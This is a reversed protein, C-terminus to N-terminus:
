VVFTASNTSMTGWCMARVPLLALIDALIQTVRCECRSGGDINAVYGSALVIGLAGNGM